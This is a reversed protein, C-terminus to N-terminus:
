GNGTLVRQGGEGVEGLVHGGAVDLDGVQLVLVNGAGRHRRPGLAARRSSRLSPSSTPPPPPLQPPPKPPLPQPPTPPPAAVSRRSAAAASPACCVQSHAQKERQRGRQITVNKTDLMTIM